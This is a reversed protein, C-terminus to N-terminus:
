AGFIGDHHHFRAGILQRLVHHEFADHLSMLHDLFQYGELFLDNGLDALGFTLEGQKNCAIVDLCGHAFIGKVLDLPAEIGGDALLALLALVLYLFIDHSMERLNERAALALDTVGNVRQIFFHHAALDKVLADTGIAAAGGLNARYPALDAYQGTSM